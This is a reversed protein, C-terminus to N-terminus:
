NCIAVKCRITRDGSEKQSSTKSYEEGSNEQAGGDSGDLHYGHCAPINLSQVIDPARRIRELEPRGALAGV